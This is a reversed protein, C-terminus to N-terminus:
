KRNRKGEMKKNWGKVDKEMSRRLKIVMLKGRRLYNVKERRARHLAIDGSLNARYCHL